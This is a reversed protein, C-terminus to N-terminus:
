ARRDTFTHSRLYVINCLWFVIVGGAWTNGGEHPQNDPDEKGYKPKDLNTNGTPEFEVDIVKKHSADRSAEIGLKTM